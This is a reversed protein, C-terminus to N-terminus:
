RHASLEAALPPCAFYNAVMHFDFAHIAVLDGVDAINVWRKVNPLRSGLGAVPAPDLRPFVAHPMALPSGLPM